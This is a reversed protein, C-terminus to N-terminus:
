EYGLEKLDWLIDEGGKFGAIKKTVEEVLAEDMILDCVVGFHVEFVALLNIYDGSQMRALLTDTQTKDIQNSWRKAQSILVFANGREGTIDITEKRIIEVKKILGM